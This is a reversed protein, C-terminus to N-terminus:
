RVCHAWLQDMNYLMHWLEKRKVVPYYELTIYVMNQKDMWKNTPMQRRGWRKTVIFLEATSMQTCLKHPSKPM